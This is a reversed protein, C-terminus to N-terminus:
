SIRKNSAARLFASLSLDLNWKRILFYGHFNPHILCLSLLTECGWHLRPHSAPKVRALLSTEVRILDKGSRSPKARSIPLLEKLAGESGLYAKFFATHLSQAGEGQGGVISLLPVWGSRLSLKSFNFCATIEEGTLTVSMFIEGRPMQHQM